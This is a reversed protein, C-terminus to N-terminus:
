DSEAEDMDSKLIEIIEAWSTGNKRARRVDDEVGHQMIESEFGMIYRVVEPPLDEVVERQRVSSEPMGAEKRRVRTVSDLMDDNQKRLRNREDLLLDFAARSVWPWRM